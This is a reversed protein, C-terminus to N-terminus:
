VMGGNTGASERSTKTEIVWYEMEAALNTAGMKM